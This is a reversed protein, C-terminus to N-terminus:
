VKEDRVIKIQLPTSSPGKIMHSLGRQRPARKAVYALNPYTKCHLSNEDRYSNVYFIAPIIIKM